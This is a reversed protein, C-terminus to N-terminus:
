TRGAVVPFESADALRLSVVRSVADDGITVGYLADAAEITGRNHTIVIFQTSEALERLAGVFRDVNAEDLAADVEDLVCFPVPRVELMAFLLAVATLAREGGSLAALPQRKKGPPRAMIEVGTQALANPDTLLLSAEGGGFLQAFRRAFAGELAAFTTRFQDNIRTSLEAILQRTAGIAGELDDQQADLGALRERVTAYELSAFPNSAGLEHYRRRMLAIRAASPAQAAAAGDAKVASASSWAQAVLDLAAELRAAITTDDTDSEMESDPASGAEEYLARLGSAGLGALEVLLTERIADLGLRAAMEALELSRAREQRHRLRERASGADVELALLRTRDDADTVELGELAHAALAEADRATALEHGIRARDERAAEVRAALTAVDRDLAVLREGDLVLGVEARRHGELALGRAQAGDEAATALEARRGRLETVRARWTSAADAGANGAGLDVAGASALATSEDAAASARAAATELRESQATEWALERGSQESARAAVREAEQAAGRERRAHDVQAQAAVWRSRAAAAMEAAAVAALDATEAARMLAGVEISLRERAASRELIGDPRGLAVIGDAGVVEGDLTVVRWGFPLSTRVALAAQLDPVWLCAGLLRTVHGAPDRRVAGELAGGGHAAAAALVVAADSRAPRAMLGDALLVHGREGRLAVVHRSAVAATRMIDGVVAEVATRLAPEVDLGEAVLRGGRRRAAVNLTGGVGDALSEELATLRAQADEHGQVASALRGASSLRRADAAEFEAREAELADAAAREAAIAAGLAGVAADLVSRAAAELSRAAERARATEAAQRAADLARRRLAEAEADRAARARRRSGEQDSTLGLLAEARDAEGLAMALAADAETLAADAAADGVPPPTALVRRADTMRAELGLRETELREVEREALALDAERRGESLRLETVRGRVLDLEGRAGRAAEGRDALARALAAASEEARTLARLAADSTRRASDLGSRADNVERAAASWRTRTAAVLTEALEAAADRRAVQQEAQAALRRAQPRLEGLIDRIRALNTEAEALRQEAQRRRREHRRVGAAEEFLPRREEPRLSLAQDVMGQGIFLFANDALNAADLLDVLDRLRVSQRNLLYENEGSRYLRRGLDVEAYEVPLLRDENDIVLAVDAMGTAHRRASGAFIVDEARRTRLSRGQEGLAWRLADALNSKGSGNPGVVASIGPGFELTTREAFSKFGVLRLARLRARATM